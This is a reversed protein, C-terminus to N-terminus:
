PRKRRTRIPDDIRKKFSRGCAVWIPIELVCCGLVFLLFGVSISRDRQSEAKGQQHGESRVRSERAEGNTKGAVDDRTFGWNPIGDRRKRRARARPGKARSRDELKM